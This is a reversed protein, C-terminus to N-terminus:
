YGDNASNLDERSWQSRDSEYDREIIGRGNGGRKATVILRTQQSEHYPMDKCSSPIVETFHVTIRASLRDGDLTIDDIEVQDDEPWGGSECADDLYDSVNGSLDHDLAEQLDDKDDSAAWAAFTRPLDITNDDTRDMKM